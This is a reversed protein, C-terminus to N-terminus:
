LFKCYREITELLFLKNIVINSPKMLRKYGKSHINRSNLVDFVKKIRRIFDTTACSNESVTLKLDKQLFELSDDVNNNLM